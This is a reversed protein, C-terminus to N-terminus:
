NEPSDASGEWDPDAGAKFVGEHYMVLHVRGFRGSGEVKELNIGSERLKSWTDASWLVDEHDEYLMVTDDAYVRGAALAEEITMGRDIVRSLVQVIAPVIRSGGAAGLAIYPEGGRIVLTPSIHSSARENPQMEGLYGGLTSAYLFGLTPTVVKSGMNPGLSQTLSVMMGNKDIVSLHTTHGDLSLTDSSPKNFSYKLNTFVTDLYAKSLIVNAMSDSKQAKRDEYSRKQTMYIWKAWEAEDIVSLDTRNLLELIELTIAGYSPMYLSHVETDRYKTSVIKSAEARYNKLSTASITSGNAKLDAIIKEAISGQYFDDEGKESIIRLTNALDKQIFLENELYTTDGHLFKQKTGSYNRIADIAFAHRKSELELLNFGNEAHKIAPEILTSLALSGYDERLKKLGRVVGPIGIVPYGERAQTASLPDYEAPAQTTADIGAITGDSTRIICQLRGGLGSMSPEVVALTYAAAIAADAANGGSELIQIAAATALPHATSVAGFESTVNQQKIPLHEHLQTCAQIFFLGILTFLHKNM